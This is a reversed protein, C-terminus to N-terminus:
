EKRELGEAERVYKVVQLLYQSHEEDRTVRDLRFETLMGNGRLKTMTVKLTCAVKKLEM